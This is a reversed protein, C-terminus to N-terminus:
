LPEDYDQQEIESLVKEAALVLSSGGCHLWSRAVSIIAKERFYKALAPHSLMLNALSPVDTRYAIRVLHDPQSIIIDDMTVRGFDSINLHTAINVLGIRSLVQDVLSPRGVAFGNADLILVTGFRRRSVRKELAELRNSLGALFSEAEDSRGLVKGLARYTKYMEEFTLPIDVEVVRYGLRKLLIKAAGTTHRGAVVLDPKLSVIEEVQGTNLILGRALDAVPSEEPDATLFSVSVITGVEALRLVIQDACLNMSVIRRPEEAQVKGALGVCVFVFFFRGM